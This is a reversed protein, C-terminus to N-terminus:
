RHFKSIKIVEDKIHADDDGTRYTFAENVSWQNSYGAVTVVYRTGKTWNQKKQLIGHIDENWLIEFSFNYTVQFLSLRNPSSSRPDAIPSLDDITVDMEPAPLSCVGASSGESRFRRYEGEQM